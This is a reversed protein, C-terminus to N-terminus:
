FAITHKTTVLMPAMQAMCSGELVYQQPVEVVIVGSNDEVVSQTRRVVLLYLNQEIEVSSGPFSDSQDAASSSRNEGVFHKMNVGRVAVSSERTNFEYILSANTLSADNLTHKIHQQANCEYDSTPHRRGKDGRGRVTLDETRSRRRAPNAAGAGYSPTHAKPVQSATRSPGLNTTAELKDLENEGQQTAPLSISRRDRRPEFGDEAHTYM